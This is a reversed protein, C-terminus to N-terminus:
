FDNQSLLFFHLFSPPPLPSLAPATLLSFSPSNCSIQSSFTLNKKREKKRKKKRRKQNKKNERKKKKKKDEGSM